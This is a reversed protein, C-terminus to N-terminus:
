KGDPEDVTARQAPPWKPLVVAPNLRQFESWFTEIAAWLFRLDTFTMRDSLAFAVDLRMASMDRSIGGLTEAAKVVAAENTKLREAVDEQGSSVTFYIRAVFFAGVAVGGLIAWSFWAKGGIVKIDGDSM